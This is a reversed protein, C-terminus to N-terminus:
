PFSSRPLGFKARQIVAHSLEWLKKKYYACNFSSWKLKPFSVLSPITWKQFDESTFPVVSSHNLIYNISYKKYVEGPIWTNEKGKGELFRYFMNLTM